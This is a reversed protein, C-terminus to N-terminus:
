WFFMVGKVLSTMFAITDATLLMFCRWSSDLWSPGFAGCLARSSEYAWLPCYLCFKSYHPDAGFIGREPLIITVYMYLIFSVPLARLPIFGKNFNNILILLVSVFSKRSQSCQILLGRLVDVILSPLWGVLMCAHARAGGLQNQWIHRCWPCACWYVPDSWLLCLLSLKWQFGKQTYVKDLICNDSKCNNINAM